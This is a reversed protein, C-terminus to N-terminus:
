PEIPLMNLKRAFFEPALTDFEWPKELVCAYRADKIIIHESGAIVRNLEERNVILATVHIISWMYLTFSADLLIPM